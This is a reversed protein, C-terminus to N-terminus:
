WAVAACVVTAAAGTLYGTTKWAVGILPVRGLIGQYISLGALFVGAVPVGLELDYLCAAIFTAAFAYRLAASNGDPLRYRQDEDPVRVPVAFSPQEVTLPLRLGALTRLPHVAVDPHPTLILIYAYQM